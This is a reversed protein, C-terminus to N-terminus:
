NNIIVDVMEKINGSPIGLRKLKGSLYGLIEMLLMPVKKLAEETDTVEMVWFGESNWPIYVKYGIHEKIWLDPDATNRWYGLEALILQFVKNQDDSLGKFQYVEKM